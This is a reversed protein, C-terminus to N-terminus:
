HYDAIEVDTAGGSEWRFCVRYRSNIRISYQGFRNGKLAELRNGRPERLAMLHDALQIRDLRERAAPWLIPPCTRRAARTYFTAYVDYTGQNKFSIIM